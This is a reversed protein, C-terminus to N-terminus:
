YDIFWKVVLYSKFSYHTGVDLASSCGAKETSLSIQLSISAQYFNCRARLDHDHSLLPWYSGHSPDTRALSDQLANTCAEGRGWLSQAARMEVSQSSAGFNDELCSARLARFITHDTRMTKLLYNAEASVFKYITNASMHIARRIYQPVCICLNDSHM